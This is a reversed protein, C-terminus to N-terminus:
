KDSDNDAGNFEVTAVETHDGNANGREIGFKARYYAFCRAGAALRMLAGEAIWVATAPNAEILPVIVEANWSASHKVDLTAHVDFYRRDCAAIGLRRLGEAVQAVRGPATLEVVGLAGIAHYTYERRIALGLMLNSLALAPWVTTEIAVPLHLTTVLQELMRGHMGDLSGRGMEDWYNRALELKVRAPLKVQTLAILDDFGAEGATEQTLFWRMDALTAHKALWPFLPDGQGPGWENLGQFWALFAQPDRPACAAASLVAHREYEILQRENDPSLLSDEDTDDPSRPQLRHANLHALLRHLGDIGLATQQSLSAMM